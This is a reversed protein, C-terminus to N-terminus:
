GRRTRKEAPLNSISLCLRAERASLMNAGAGGSSHTSSHRRAHNVFRSCSDTAELLSSASEASATDRGCNHRNVSSSSFSGAGACFFFGAGPTENKQIGGIQSGGCVLAFIFSVSSSVACGCGVGTYIRHFAHARVGGRSGDFMGRSCFPARWVTHRRAYSIANDSSGVGCFSSSM